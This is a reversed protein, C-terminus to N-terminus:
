AEGGGDVVVGRREGGREGGVREGMGGGEGGVGRRRGGVRKSGEEGVFSVPRM